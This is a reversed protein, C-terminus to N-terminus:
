RKIKDKVLYDLKKDIEQITKDMNEIQLQIRKNERNYRRYSFFSAILAIMTAFLAYGSFMLVAAIIKGPLTVPVLDGYGTTTVTVMAWWLGKGFSTIQGWNSQREFIPTISAAIFVLGLEVLLFRQIKYIKFLDHLLLRHNRASM